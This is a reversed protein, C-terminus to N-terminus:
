IGEENDQYFQCAYSDGEILRFKHANVDVLAGVFFEMPDYFNGTKPNKLKKREM